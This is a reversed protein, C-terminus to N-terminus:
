IPKHVKPSSISCFSSTRVAACRLLFSRCIAAVQRCCIFDHTRSDKVAACMGRNGCSKSSTAVGTRFRSFFFFLFFHLFARLCSSHFLFSKISLVVLSLRVLCLPSFSLHLLERAMHCRTHHSATATTACGFKEQAIREESPRGRRAHIRM